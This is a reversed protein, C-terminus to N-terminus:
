NKHFQHGTVGLPVNCMSSTADKGGLTGSANNAATLQVYPAFPAHYDVNVSGALTYVGLGLLRFPVDSRNQTLALWQAWATQTCQQM